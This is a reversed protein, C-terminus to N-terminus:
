RVGRILWGKDYSEAPHQHIYEHAEACVLLLLAPDHGGTQSRRLVHHCHDGRHERPPCAPTNVECRGYARFKVAARAQAYEADTARKKDSRRKLTPSM